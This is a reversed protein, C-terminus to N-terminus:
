TKPGNKYAARAAPEIDDYMSQFVSFLDEAISLSKFGTEKYRFSHGQDHWSVVEAVRV